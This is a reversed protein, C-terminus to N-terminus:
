YLWQADRDVAFQPGCVRKRRARFDEYLALWADRDSCDQQLDWEASTSRHRCSPLMSQAMDKVGTQWPKALPYDSFHVYHAEKLVNAASWGNTQGPSVGEESRGSYATHNDSRFEGTLVLYPRHPIVLCEDGYLKNMIEMDYNEEEKLGVQENVLAFREESPSVLMLSSTLEHDLWYARPMAVATKPLLFLEDMHKLVTADSDLSLVRRYETMNFALLKTFGQSWTPDGDGQLIQVEKVKAGYLQHARGLLDRATLTYDETENELGKEPMHVLHAAVMIVIEARTGLRWLAESIMVSNCIHDTTTAYTVYAFDKWKQKGGWIRSRFGGNRLGQLKSVLAKQGPLQRPGYTTLLICTLILAVLALLRETPKSRLMNLPSSQKGASASPYRARPSSPFPSTPKWTRGLSKTTHLHPM